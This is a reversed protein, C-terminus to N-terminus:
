WGTVKDITMKNADQVTNLMHMFENLNQKDVETPLTGFKTLLSGYLYM